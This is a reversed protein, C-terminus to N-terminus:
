GKEHKTKADKSNTMLETLQENLKTIKQQLKIARKLVDDSTASEDSPQEMAKKKLAAMEDSSDPKSAVPRVKNNIERRTRPSPNEKPNVTTREYSLCNLLLKYLPTIDDDIFAAEEAAKVAAASARYYCLSFGKLKCFLMLFIRSTFESGCEFPHMIILERMYHTLYGAFDDKSITPSKEIDNMKACLSKLSGSIYKPDTHANGGTEVNVARPKGANEDFTGYLSKNLLTLAVSTVPDQNFTKIANLARFFANFSVARDFAPSGKALTTRKLKSSLFKACDLKDLLMMLGDTDASQPLKHGDAYLATKVSRLIKNAEHLEM